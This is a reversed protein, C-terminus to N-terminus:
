PAPAADSTITQGARTLTSAAQAIKPSCGVGTCAKPPTAIRAATSSTRFPQLSAPMPQAGGSKDGTASVPPCQAGQLLGDHRVAGSKRRAALQARKAQAHETRAVCDAQDAAVTQVAFVVGVLRAHMYFCAVLVDLRMVRKLM